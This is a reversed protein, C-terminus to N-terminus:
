HSESPKALSHVYAAVDPIMEPTLSLAMAQM